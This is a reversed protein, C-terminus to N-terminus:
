PATVLIDDVSAVIGEEVQIGLGTQGSLCSGNDVTNGSTATMTSVCDDVYTAMPTDDFYAALHASLSGSVTLRLTHWEGVPVRAPLQGEALLCITYNPEDTPVKKFVGVKSITGDADVTAGVAYFINETSSAQRVDLRVRSSMSVQDVRFRMSATIDTNPFLAGDLNCRLRTFPHDTADLIVIRNNGDLASSAPGDNSGPSSWHREYGSSFDDRFLVGSTVTQTATATATNTATPASGNADGGGPALIVIARQSTCGPQGAVLLAPLVFSSIASRVLM